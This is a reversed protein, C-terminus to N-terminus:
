RACQVFRWALRQRLTLTITTAVISKGLCMKGQLLTMLTREIVLSCMMSSRSAIGIHVYVHWRLATFVADQYGLVVCDVDLYVGHFDEKGDNISGNGEFVLPM